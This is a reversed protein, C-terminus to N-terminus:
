VEYTPSLAPTVGEKSSKIIEDVKANHKERKKVIEDHQKKYMDSKAYAELMKDATLEGSIGGLMDMMGMLSETDVNFGSVKKDVTNILNALSESIVNRHIGTRYEVNYDVAQRLDDILGAEANKKIIDVANTEELLNEIENYFEEDTCEDSLIYAVDVDDTFICVIMFDFFMDKIVYNYNKEVLLDTVLNVFNVKENASLSTKFEFSFDEGNRTYVGTKINGSM